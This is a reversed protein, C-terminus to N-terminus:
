RTCCAWRTPPACLWQRLLRADAPPAIHTRSALFAGKTADGSNDVEVRLAPDSVAADTASAATVPSARAASRRGRLVNSGPLTTSRRWLPATLNPRSAVVRRPCPQQAVVSGLTALRMSRCFTGSQGCTGALLGPGNLRRGEGCFHLRKTAATAPLLRWTAPLLRAQPPSKSQKDRCEPARRENKRRLFRM